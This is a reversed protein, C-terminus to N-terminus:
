RRCGHLSLIQIMTRRMNRREVIADIFGHDLLFEARQFGEPLKEGITQEIVRPGAFGILANPEALIIDGLSAFSATVGGTTPNTMYSIFLGGDDSLRKIAASTKAMQMLSFIGEQMRAGGSASFVILPIEESLAYEAARTVKEGVATGMSGMLFASDLVAVMARMGGIKGTACVCADNIGTKKELEVLKEDYEPFGIPNRPKIRTFQYKVSGSDFLMSIYAKHSVSFHYGCEQCVYYDKALKERTTDNKCSPCSVFREQQPEPTKETRRFNRLINLKDKRDKLIENTNEM